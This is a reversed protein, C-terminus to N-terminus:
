NRKKTDKKKPEIWELGDVIELRGFGGKKLELSERAKMLQHNWAKFAPVTKEVKVKKCVTSNCYVLQM